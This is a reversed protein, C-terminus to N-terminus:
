SLDNSTLTDAITKMINQAAKEYTYTSAIISDTEVPSTPLSKLKRYLDDADGAKFFTVPFKGYIEKYVPIDSIIAPTGLSMAELPPIGFGEYLSPSILCEAHSLMEYVQQNDANTILHIKDQNEQITRLIENDKTRFDFRGIITLPPTDIGEDLMKKYAKWLIHLGKYKKINGLYVIGSRSNTIPHTTKYNQLEISIGNCIVNIERSTHFYGQIRQRSFQSVTFLGKSVALARKIYWKLAIKHIFSSFNETDFFVIDHITSFIPVRIGLPINFNPTYFADCQNVEKLPFCLLEKLSFSGHNCEVISCHQLKEYCSLVDKKGILVFETEQWKVIHHVVNEIFTGIGSQGILRCDIAIRM